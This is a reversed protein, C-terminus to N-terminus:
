EIPTRANYQIRTRGATLWSGIALVVPLAVAALLLPAWPVEFPVAARGGPQVLSESVALAPISGLVVGGISGVGTIVAASWFSFARRLRPPAGLSGLVVEDRRGESRALGLAVSAAGLAVIACLILLWWQATGAFSGPGAEYYPFGYRAMSGQVAANAANVADKQADTPASHVKALIQTPAYELGISRATSPLMVMDYDVAHPPLQLVAPLSVTKVTHGITGDGPYDKLPTFTKWDITVKGDRLYQSYFAVAKGDALAARSAANLPAGIAFAIQSATAVWIHTEDQSDTLYQPGQCDPSAISLSGPKVATPGAPLQTCRAAPNLAPVAEVSRHGPISSPQRASDLQRVSSAQLTSQVAATLQRSQTSTPVFPSYNISVLGPATQYEYEATQSAQAAATYTMLFSAVFITSMIAGVAPVSRSANRAADRSALRAATGFRSLARAVARLLTPAIVLAAIQLIIPGVIILTIAVQDLTLNNGGTTSRGVIIAAGVITLAIGLLAFIVAVVPARRSPPVPRAAGRLSAVVDLRSARRAPILAAIWGALVAFLVVCGLIPPSVHFGPFESLSGDSTAQLYVWAGAIGLGTGLLGGTLGLVIGASSVVRSLMRRDGGVSALTALSREQQKTGVLFAAGALLGVEFLSFAGFPILILVSQIPGTNGSDAWEAPIPPPDLLVARSLAIIGHRNLSQVATWSLARDPLYFSTGESDKSPTIGDLAGPRGFLQATSQPSTLDRMTGVITFTRTRPQTLAVTQGIVKGLRRLAAPTAMLESDRTPAHGSLVIFRGRFARDWPEGETAALSGIGTATKAIVSLDRLTLVRTGAPLFASPLSGPTPVSTSQNGTTEWNGPSVPDEKVTVTPGAVVNLLAQNNGLENRAMEQPTPDNSTLITALGSMGIIPIAILVVILASRRLHSSADRRAIRLALRLSGRGAPRLERPQSM